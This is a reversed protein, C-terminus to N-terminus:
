EWIMVQPNFGFTEFYSSDWEKPDLYFRMSINAISVLTWAIAPTPSGELVGRVATALAGGALILHLDRTFPTAREPKWLSGWTVEFSKWCSAVKERIPEPLAINEFLTEPPCHRHENSNVQM